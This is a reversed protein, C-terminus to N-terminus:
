PPSASWWRAAWSRRGPGDPDFGLLVRGYSGFAVAYLGLMVFYSLWLLLNLPGALHHRLM